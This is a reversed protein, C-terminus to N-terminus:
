ITLETWLANFVDWGIGRERPIFYVVPNIFARPILYFLSKYGLRVKGVLGYMDLVSLIKNFYSFLPFFCFWVVRCACFQTFRIHRNNSRTYWIESLKQHTHKLITKTKKFGVSWSRRVKQMCNLIVNPLSLTNYYWLFPFLIYFIDNKLHVYLLVSLRM